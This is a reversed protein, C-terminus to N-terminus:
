RAARRNRNATRNNRDARKSSRKPKICRVNGRRRVRRKGKPCGQRKREAQPNGPGQFVASGAGPTEPAGTSAGRCGEGECGPPAPSPEPFGGDVRADYIDFKDDSDWGVLPSVSYFFVDDGSPTVGILHSSENGSADSILSLTGDNWEYVDECAYNYFNGDLNSFPCSKEGNTDQPLLADPTEFFVRGDDTMTRPLTGGGLEGRVFVNEIISVAIDKSLSHGASPVGPLQCSACRWGDEEGWRYVDRDADRDGVPDLRADTDILLYKGDSSVRVQQQLWNRGDNYFLKTVDFIGGESPALAGLYDVIPSGGNWRWRYLKHRESAAPEGAVIQDYAAFYVTDLDDSAGILGSVNPQTGDSPEDDISVDVLRNGPPAHRDWRYLKTGPLSDSQNDAGFDCSVDVASANTLKSCSNFLVKDGSPTALEYRDPASGSGCSVTCESTSVHFTTSSDERMYLECSATCRGSALPGIGEVPNQFLIREGDTSVARTPGNNGYTTGSGPGYPDPFNSNTTLPENSTDKTILTVCGGAQACGDEGQEIWEYLRGFRDDVLPSDPPDTQNQYSLYAVHSFDASGGFPETAPGFPEDGEWAPRPALLDFSSLNASLDQRYLNLSPLPATPDLPPTACSPMEPIKLAARSYDQSLLLWITGLSEGTGDTNFRCFPPAPARTTWGDVGRRSLYPVCFLGQQGVPEGFSTSLCFSAANGDLSINARTGGLGGKAGGLNKDPPSVMEYARCDPLFTANQEQRRAGNPCNGPSAPPFPKARTTFTASSTTVTATQNTAVVRFYYTTSPNLSGVLQSVTIPTTGGGIDVRPTQSGFAPTTGYEFFYGTASNRPDITAVLRASQDAVQIAGVDSVAPPVADTDFVRFGPMLTTSNPIFPRSAALRVYYHSSPHLGTIKQSVQQPGGNSDLVACEGEPVDTWNLKDISYQYRCSVLAGMPDVTGTFTATTDTKTTIEELTLVPTPVSALDNLVYVRDNSFTLLDGSTENIGLGSAQSFGAGSGHTDDSVIPAASLGPDNAPGFQQVVVNGPSPNRLVYLVDEDTGGGDSDPDVALAETANPFGGSNLLAAVVGDQETTVSCNGISPASLKTCTMQPIDTAAFSKRFEVTITTYPSEGAVDFNSAEVGFNGGGCKLDLNARMHEMVQFNGPWQIPPTTKGNPCTLAYTDGNVFNTFTVEQIENRTAEIPALFGAGNGNADESDYREIEGGKESDSAYVIGRSDVAIQRPQEEGFNIASGFSAPSTGDLNYTNVRRNGTDALFVTGTVASGDAPSVAVGLGVNAEGIQGISAGAVGQQCVDTALCVEYGTGATTADVDFGFSAIFAGAGDYVNIRHNERDSVYVDGTDGDVAINQPSALTGNGGSAVGDKCEAAVTCIEFDTGTDSTTSDGDALTTIRITGSGGLGSANASLQPQDAGGLAGVFTIVFGSSGGGTVEVNADGGISPLADLANDVEYYEAKFPIPATTSGDFSLTFTGGSAEILQVRQRENVAPAIVDKGWASIFNGDEDFRQIRHNSDDVVYIDGQDAPGNGTSNVAIGGVFFGFESAFSGQPGGFTSLVEKSASASAVLVASALLASALVFVLHWPRPFAGRGDVRPSSARTASDRRGFASGRLISGDRNAASSRKAQAQV